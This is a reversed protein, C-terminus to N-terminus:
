GLYGQVLGTPATDPTATTGPRTTGYEYPLWNRFVRKIGQQTFGENEAQHFPRVEGKISNLEEICQTIFGGIAEEKNFEVGDLEAITQMAEFDPARLPEDGEKNRVLANTWIALSNLTNKISRDALFFTQVVSKVKERDVGKFEVYGGQNNQIVKVSVVTVNYETVGAPLVKKIEKSM